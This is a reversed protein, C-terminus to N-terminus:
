NSTTTTRCNWVIVKYEHFIEKLPNIFIFANASFSMHITWIDNAFIFLFLDTVIYYVTWVCHKLLMIYTYM